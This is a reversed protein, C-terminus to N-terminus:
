DIDPLPLYVKKPPNYGGNEEYWKNAKEWKVKLEKRTSNLPDNKINNLASDTALYRFLTPVDMLRGNILANASKIIKHDNTLLILDKNNQCLLICGYDALSIANMKISKIRGKKDEYLFENHKTKDGVIDDELIRRVNDYHINPIELGNDKTKCLEQFVSQSVFYEVDGYWRSLEYITDIGTNDAVKELEIYASTDLLIKIRADCAALLEANHNNM